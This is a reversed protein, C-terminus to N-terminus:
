PLMGNPSFARRTNRSRLPAATASSPGSACKMPCYSTSESKKAVPSSFFTSPIDCSLTAIVRM